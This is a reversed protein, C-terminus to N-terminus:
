RAPTADREAEELLRRFVEMTLAGLARSGNIFFTPTGSVDLEDAVRTARRTPFGSTFGRSRRRRRSPPACTRARSGVQLRTSGNRGPCLPGLPLFQKSGM